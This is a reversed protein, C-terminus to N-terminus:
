LLMAYDIKKKLHNYTSSTLKTLYNLGRKRIGCLNINNHNITLSTVIIKIDTYLSNSKIQETKKLEDNM